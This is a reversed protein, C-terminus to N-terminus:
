HPRSNFARLQVIIEHLAEQSTDFRSECSNKYTHFEDKLAKLEGALDNIIGRTQDILGGQLHMITMLHEITETHNLAQQIPGFLRPLIEEKFHRISHIAFSHINKDNEYLIIKSQIANMDQGWPVNASSYGEFMIKNVTPFDRIIGTDVNITYQNNTKRKIEIDLGKERLFKELCTKLEQIDPGHAMRM